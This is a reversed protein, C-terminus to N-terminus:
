PSYGVLMGRDMPNELWSYRLPNSHGRGPISGKHRIDRANAPPNKVVLVVQSVWGLYSGMGSLHYEVEPNSLHGRGVFKPSRNMKPSIFVKSTYAKKWLVQGKAIIYRKTSTPSVTYYLKLKGGLRLEAQFAEHM